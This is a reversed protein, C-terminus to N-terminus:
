IGGLMLDLQRAMAATLVPPLAFVQEFAQGSARVEALYYRRYGEALSPAARDLLMAGARVAAVATLRDAVGARKEAPTTNDGVVSAAFTGVQEHVLAYVVQDADAVRSPFGIAASVRQPGLAVTRGEGGLALVLIAEGGLQKTEKLFPAVRDRVGGLWRATAADLVPGRERQQEVWWQHFWRDSEDQLAQWFLRLWAKDAPAAFLAALGGAADAGRRPSGDSALVLAIAQRLDDGTAFTQAAFQAQALAPNHKLGARLSTLATDLITVVSRANKLVTTTDRWTRRFLPVPAEDTLVLAWGHLWLDVHERTKLQWTLRAPEAEVAPRTGRGPGGPTPPAGVGDDVPPASACGSAIGAAIAAVLAAARVVRATM